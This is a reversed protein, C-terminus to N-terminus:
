TIRVMYRYPSSILNLPNYSCLTLLFYLQSPPINPSAQSSISMAVSLPSYWFINYIHKFNWFSFMYKFSWPSTQTHQHVGKIGARLFCPFSSRQAWSRGSKCHAKPSHSHLSVSDWFVLGLLCVFLVTSIEVSMFLQPWKYRLIVVPFPFTLPALSTTCLLSLSGRAAAQCASGEACNLNKLLQM